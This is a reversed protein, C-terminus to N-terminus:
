SRRKLVFVATSTLTNSGAVAPHFTERLAVRLRKGSGTLRRGTSTIRVSLSGHGAAALTASGRGIAKGGSTLVVTMTGPGPWSLRLLLRSRRALKHLDFKGLLRAVSRADTQVLAPDYVPPPVVVAWAALAPSPDTNGYPDTARARFTHIGPTPTGLGVPSTCATYARGDVSCEFDSGPESSDFAVSEPGPAVRGAPASGITTEPPDIHIARGKFADYSPKHTYDQFVLGTHNDWADTVDSQPSGDHWFYETLGRLNLQEHLGVLQGMLSDIDAAQGALDKTYIGPKGASGWGFETMWIPRAADGNANMIARVQEVLGVADDPTNAYGHVALTDFSGEVGDAYLQTVYDALRIALANLSDPMGATVVEASPDAARIMPAVTTLMQVYGAASPAGGWYSPFNPENWIQWSKIPRKPVTPNAAWFSGNPGYRGILVVLFDGLQKEDTPPCRTPRAAGPCSTAWSPSYLVVPLVQMGARAASTMFSDTDSWSYSGKSPEIASWDFLQRLLEVGAAKQDDLIPTRDAQSLSILDPSSVGFFDSPLPAARATACSSAALLAGALVLARLGVDVQDLTVRSGAPPSRM